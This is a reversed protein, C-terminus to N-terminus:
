MASFKRPQIRFASSGPPPRAAQASSVSAIVGKGVPPCVDGLSPFLLLYCLRIM